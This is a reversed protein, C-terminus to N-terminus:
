DVRGEKKQECCQRTAMSAVMPQAWVQLPQDFITKGPPSPFQAEKRSM